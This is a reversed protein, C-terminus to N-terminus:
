YHAASCAPHEGAEFSVQEYPPHYCWRGTASFVESILSIRTKFIDFSTAMM